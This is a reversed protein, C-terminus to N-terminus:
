PAAAEERAAECADCLAVFSRQERHNIKIIITARHIIVEAADETPHRALARAWAKAVAPRHPTIRPAYPASVAPRGLSRLAGPGEYAARQVAPAGDLRHLPADRDPHLPRIADLGPNLVPAYLNTKAPPPQENTLGDFRHGPELNDASAEADEPDFVVTAPDSWPGWPDRAARVHIQDRIQGAPGGFALYATLWRCLQPHWGASVEGLGDVGPLIATPEQNDRVLVSAPRWNAPGDAGAPAGDVFYLWTSPHPVPCPPQTYPGWPSLPFSVADDFSCFALFMASSHYLGTGFMVLGHGIQAPLGPWDACRVVTPSVHTLWRGAPWGSLRTSSISYLHELTENPNNGLQKTVALHSDNMREGPGSTPEKFRAIFVYLRGQYSFAGTPVEFNTLPPLGDMHLRHFFGGSGMLWHLLPGAPEEPGETTWAIPDADAEMVNDDDDDGACDGFFLYLRGQHWVPVGLDTGILGIQTTDFRAPRGANGVVGTLQCIRGASKTKYVLRRDGIKVSNSPGSRGGCLRQRVRLLTGPALVPVPVSARSRTVPHSVLTVGQSQNESAVVEIDCFAGPVLEEVTITQGADDLPDTVDPPLLHDLAPQVTATGPISRLQGCRVLELSLEDGETLAFDLLVDTFKEGLCVLNGIAHGWKKSLVYVRTGATLGRVGVAVACAHVPELIRPQDLSGVPVLTTWATESWPGFACLAQRVGLRKVNGLPPVNFRHPREGVEGSVITGTGEGILFELAAGPRLGEVEVDRDGACVPHPFWPTPVGATVEYRREEAASLECAPFAQKASVRQGAELRRALWFTGRPAGFCFDTVDGDHDVTIQAGPRVDFLELARECAFLPEAIQPPAIPLADPQPLAPPLTVNPGVVTGRAQRVVVADGENLRPVDVHVATWESAVTIAPAGSVTVTVDAGPVVGDLWLCTACKSLSARSFVKGLVAPTPENLVTIASTKPTKPSTESGVQQAATIKQGPNLLVGQDLPVFTDPSTARARGVPQDDAFVTVNADTHQGKVRISRSWPTIPAIVTPALLM